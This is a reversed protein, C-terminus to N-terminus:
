DESVIENLTNMTIAMTTKFLEMNENIQAITEKSYYAHINIFEDFSNMNWMNTTLWQNTVKFLKYKLVNVMISEVLTRDTIAIEGIYDIAKKIKIRLSVEYEKNGLDEKMILKNVVVEAVATYIVIRRNPDVDHLIDALKRTKENMHKM